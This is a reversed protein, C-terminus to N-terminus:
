FPHRVIDREEAGSSKFQLILQLSGKTYGTPLKKERAIGM